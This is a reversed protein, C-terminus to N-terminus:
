TQNELISHASVPYLIKWAMRHSACGVKRIGGVLGVTGANEIGFISVVVVRWPSNEPYHPFLVLIGEESTDDFPENPITVVSETEAIIGPELFCSLVFGRWWAFGHTPETRWQVEVEEMPLLLPRGDNTVPFNFLDRTYLERPDMELLSAPIRRFRVRADLSIEEDVWHPNNGAMGQSAAKLNISQGRRYRAIVGEHYCLAFTNNKHNFTALAFFASMERNTLSNLVQLYGTYQGSFILQYSQQYSQPLPHYPNKRIARCDGPCKFGLDNDCVPGYRSDNLTAVTPPTEILEMEQQIMRPGGIYLSLTWECEGTWFFWPFDLLCRRKWILEDNILLRLRKCTRQLNLLSQGPLYSIIEYLPLESLGILTFVKSSM